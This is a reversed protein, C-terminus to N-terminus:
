LVSYQCFFFFSLLWISMKSSGSFANSLTWCGEIISVSLVSLLCSFKRAQYFTDISFGYSVDYKM